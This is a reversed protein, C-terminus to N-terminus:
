LCLLTKLSRFCFLFTDFGFMSFYFSFRKDVTANLWLAELYIDSWVYPLNSPAELFFFAQVEYLTCIDRQRGHSLYM